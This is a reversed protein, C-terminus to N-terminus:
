IAGSHGPVLPPSTPPPPPPPPPIDPPPPPIDPPVYPPPAVTAVPAAGIKVNGANDVTFSGNLDITTGALNLKGQSSNINAAGKALSFEDLINLIANNTQKQIIVGNNKVEIKGAGAANNGYEMTVGASNVTVKGGTGYKIEINGASLEIQSSTPPSGANAYIKVNDSAGTIVVGAFPTFIQIGETATPLTSMKIGHANMTLKSAPNAMNTSLGQLLGLATIQLAVGALVCGEAIAGDRMPHKGEPDTAAAIEGAAVGV